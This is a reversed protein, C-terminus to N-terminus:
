DGYLLRAARALAEPEDDHGVAAVLDRLVDNSEDRQKALREATAQWQDRSHTLHLIVETPDQEPREIDDRPRM